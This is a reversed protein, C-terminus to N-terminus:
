GGDKIDSYVGLFRTMHFVAHVSYTRATQMSQHETNLQHLFRFHNNIAMVLRIQWHSLQGTTTHVRWQCQIIRQGILQWIIWHLLLVPVYNTVLLRCALISVMTLVNISLQCRLVQEFLPLIM